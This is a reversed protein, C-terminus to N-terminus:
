LYFKEVSFTIGERGMVNARHKIFPLMWMSDVEGPPGPALLGDGPGLFRKHAIYMVILVKLPIWFNIKLFYNLFFFVSHPVPM